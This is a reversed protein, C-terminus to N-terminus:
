AKPADVAKPFAVAVKQGISTGMRTGEVCDMKFHVGLYERSKDNEAIATDVNFTRPKKPRVEGKSDTSVGNLEESVLTVRLSAPLKLLAEASRLAAAGIMAHGSPYGPFPPTFNPRKTNTMPSGLPAWSPDAETEGWQDKDDQRIAVVPRWTNWRYKEKWCLIAADAMAVNVVAFLRALQFGSRVNNRLDPHARAQVCRATVTQTSPVISPM